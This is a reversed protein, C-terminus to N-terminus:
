SEYIRVKTDIIIYSDAKLPGAVVDVNKQLKEQIDLKLGSLDFLSATQEDFCVLLDVDSYETAEGNAYPGFLDISIVPYATAVQSVVDKINLVTVGSYRVISTMGKEVIKRTGVCDAYYEKVSHSVLSHMM